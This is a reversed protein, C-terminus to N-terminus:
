RDHEKNSPYMSEEKLEEYIPSRSIALLVGGVLVLAVATAIKM